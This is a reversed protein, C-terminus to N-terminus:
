VKMPKDSHDIGILPNFGGRGVGCVARGNTVEDLAVLNSAHYAPHALRPTIIAPGVKMHATHHGILALIPWTPRLLLDDAVHLEDFGYRGINQAMRIYESMPYDGM